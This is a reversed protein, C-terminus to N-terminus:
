IGGERGAKAEEAMWIPESAHGLYSVPERGALALIESLGRRVLLLAREERFLSSVGLSDGRLVLDQRFLSISPTSATIGREWLHDLLVTNTWNSGISVEDFAGFRTLHRVGSELNWDKAVGIARFGFGHAHSFEALRLKLTEIAQPLVPDNSWPCSSSGVFLLVLQTGEDQRYVPQYRGELTEPPVFPNLSVTLSFHRSLWFGGFFFSVGLLGPM